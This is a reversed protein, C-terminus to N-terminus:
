CVSTWITASKAPVRMGTKALPDFFSPYSPESGLGYSLLPCQSTVSTFNLVVNRSGTKVLASGLVLPIKVLLMLMAIM